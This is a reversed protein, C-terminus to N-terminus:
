RRRILNWSQRESWRDNYCALNPGRIHESEANEFTERSINRSRRNTKDFKLLEM